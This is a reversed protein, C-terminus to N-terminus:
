FTCRSLIVLRWFFLRLGSEHAFGRASAVSGGSDIYFGTLSGDLQEPGM